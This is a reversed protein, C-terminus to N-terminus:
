RVINPNYSSGTAKVTRRQAKGGGSTRGQPKAPAKSRSSGFTTVIKKDKNVIVTANKGKYKTTGNAQATVSKPKNIANSKAKVSVGKGGNRSISQNLGHKTHGTVKETKKVTDVVNDGGKILKKITGGSVGPIIAGLVLYGADSAKVDTGDAHKPKGDYMGFVGRTITTVAVTVDDVDTWSLVEGIM